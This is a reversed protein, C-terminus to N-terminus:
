ILSAREQVAANPLTEMQRVPDRNKLARVLADSAIAFFQRAQHLLRQPVLDRVM